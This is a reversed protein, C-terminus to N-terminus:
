GGHIHYLVKEGERAREAGRGAAGAGPGEGEGEGEGASLPSVMVGARREGRVGACVAVGARWGEEAAEVGLVEVEVEGREVARRAFEPEDPVVWATEESVQPALAGCTAWKVVKEARGRLVRSLPWTASLAIPPRRRLPLLLHTLLFSPLYLPVLVFRALLTLLATRIRHARSSIAHPASPDPLHPPRRLGTWRDIIARPSM